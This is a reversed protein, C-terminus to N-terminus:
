NDIGVEGREGQFLKLKLKGKRGEERLEVCIKRDLEFCYSFVLGLLLPGLLGSISVLGPCTGLRVVKEGQYTCDKENRM